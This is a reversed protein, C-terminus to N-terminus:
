KIQWKSLHQLSLHWLSFYGKIKLKNTLEIGRFEGFFIQYTPKMYPWHVTDWLKSGVVELSIKETWFNKLVWIKKSAVSKQSWFKQQAWIDKSRFNNKVWFNKPGFETKVLVNKSLLEKPMIIKKTFIRPVWFKKPDLIKKFGFNNQVM